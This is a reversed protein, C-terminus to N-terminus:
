PYYKSQKRSKRNKRNKRIISKVRTNAIKGGAKSQTGPLLERFFNNGNKQENIQLKLIDLYYKNEDHCIPCRSDRKVWEQLCISHFLHPTDPNIDRHLQYLYGGKNKDPNEEDREILPQMCMGCEYEKDDTVVKPIQSISWLLSSNKPTTKIETTMLMYEIYHFIIVINMDAHWLLWGNHGPTYGGDAYRQRDIQFPLIEFGTFTRQLYLYFSINDINNIVKGDIYVKPGQLAYGEISLQINFVRTYHGYAVTITGNVVYRKNDFETLRINYPLNTFPSTPAEHEMRRFERELREIQRPAYAPLVQYNTSM